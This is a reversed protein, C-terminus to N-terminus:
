FVGTGTRVSALKKDSIDTLSNPPVISVNILSLSLPLRDYSASM